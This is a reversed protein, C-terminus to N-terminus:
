RVRPLPPAVGSPLPVEHANLTFAILTYYGILATLEVAGVVGFLSKVRDYVSEPVRHTELLAKAFEYAARQREDPLEPRRDHAVAEVVTADVDSQLAIKAHQYWEFDCDWHRAVVLIALESVAPSLCTHYRLFGGLKQAPEALRPQHLMPAFPGNLWTGRSAVIEQYIRLQEPNMQEPTLFPTRTKM